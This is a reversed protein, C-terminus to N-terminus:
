VRFQPMKLRRFKNVLGAQKGVEFVSELVRQSVFDCVSAQELLAAARKMRPDHFRDLFQIRIAEGFLNLPQRVVRQAALQPFLRHFIKVLGTLFRRSARGSPLRDCVELLSQFRKLM